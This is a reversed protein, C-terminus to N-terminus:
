REVEGELDTLFTGLIRKRKVGKLDFDRFATNIENTFPNKVEIHRIVYPLLHIPLSSRPQISNSEFLFRMITRLYAHLAQYLPQVKLVEKELKSLFDM